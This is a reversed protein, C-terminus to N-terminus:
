QVRRRSAEATDFGTWEPSTLRISRTGTAQLGAILSAASRHFLIELKMIIKDGQLTYFTGANLLEDRLELPLERLLWKGRTGRCSTLRKPVWWRSRDVEIHDVILRCIAMRTPLPSFATSAM